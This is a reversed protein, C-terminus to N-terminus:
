EAKQRFFDSFFLFHDRLSRKWYKWTHAGPRTTFEHPIGNKTLEDHLRCNVEYFFDKTGCDVILQLSEPKLRPIQAIVTNAKWNEPCEEITGLRKKIDWNEPFPCFDVGGSMSGAAGFVDQHRFALYLAGHGGMSLGTIARANRDAVTPYNADMYEVLEKTVFTEYRYAPDIPSDFYWSTDGDPLAVLVKLADAYRRVETRTLYGNLPSDGYGHLLYVVPLREGESVNDSVIVAVSVMKDMAESKVALTDVRSANAGFAALLLLAAMCYKKLGNM